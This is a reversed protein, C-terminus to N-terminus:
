ACARLPESLLLKIALKFDSTECGALRSVPLRASIQTENPSDAVASTSSNGRINQAKSAIYKRCLTFFNAKLNHRADISRSWEHGRFRGHCEIIIGITTIFKLNRAIFSLRIPPENLDIPLLDSKWLNVNSTQQQWRFCITALRGPEAVENCTCSTVIGEIAIREVGQSESTQFRKCYAISAMAKFAIAPQHDLCACRCSLRSRRVSFEHGLPAARAIAPFSDAM